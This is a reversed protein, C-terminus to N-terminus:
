PQPRVHLYQTRESPPGGLSQFPAQQRCPPAPVGDTGLAGGFALEQIRDFLGEPFQDADAPDLSASLGSDCQGISFSRLGRNLRGYGGPKTYPNTRNSRPRDPYAALVQPGLPSLTRLFTTPLSARVVENAEESFVRQETLAGGSFRANSTAAVNGLFATIERRYSRVAQVPPILQKLFPELRELLPPLEDDLLRELSDLGRRSRGIVPGLGDFFRELRPALRGAETITASLERVAPRLQTVLPNTDAAFRDLREVTLRSETLFTPLVRFADQLAADRRATTAFVTDANTILGRLEGQSESLAGFVEGSDRILQSVAESQQDLITLTRTAEESFPDLTGFAANLDAGRGDFAVAADQMWTRFAARTPEDFTRFIEDLQVSEAVQAQPLEGGEPITPGNPTGPTLGVYIEGLLTKQRLIARTDTPLPAFRDEIEVTAEAVGGEGLEVEKVTGVSVGSIRVDSEQALNNAEDFPVTVRYGQPNLPIPGGFSLWLFLLLAFCSIAFGVALLIRGYTPPRTEM